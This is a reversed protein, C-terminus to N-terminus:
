VEAMFDVKYKENAYGSVDLVVEREDKAERLLDGKLV